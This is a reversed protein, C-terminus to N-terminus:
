GLVFCMFILLHSSLACVNIAFFYFLIKEVFNFVWLKFYCAWVLWSTKCRSIVQEARGSEYVRIKSQM